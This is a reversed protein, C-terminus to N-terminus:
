EYARGRAFTGRQYLLLRREINREPLILSCRPIPLSTHLQTTSGRVRSHLLNRAGKRRGKEEPTAFDYYAFGDAILKEAAARYLDARQSLYYPGFPGDVEPGEDWDIGLWRLGDLIPQLAEEVNRQQDTDDIRLVFTGGNKRAFLWCFLATRVGGIHLYGTPSPAFRTRITLHLRCCFPSSTSPPIANVTQRSGLKPPFNTWPLALKSSRFSDALPSDQTSNVLVRRRTLSYCQQITSGHPEFGRNERFGRATRRNKLDISVHSPLM